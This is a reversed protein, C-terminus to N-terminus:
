PRELADIVLVETPTRKEELKLGLQEEMAALLSPGASGPQDPVWELQFWFKGEIGTKDIVPRGIMRSLREAFGPVDGPKFIADYGAKFPPNEKAAANFAQEASPDSLKPGDDAVMLWYVPLEKVERHASLKFREELLRRLLLRLQVSSVAGKPRATVDYRETGIWDPALIRPAQVEYAQQVLEKITVNNAVVGFQVRGRRGGGRSPKVSVAEFTPEPPAVTSQGTAACPVSAMVTAAALLRLSTM